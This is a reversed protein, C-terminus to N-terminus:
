WWKSVNRLEQQFKTTLLEVDGEITWNGNQSTDRAPSMRFITDVEHLRPDQSSVIRDVEPHM